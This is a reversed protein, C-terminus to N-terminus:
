SRIVFPEERGYDVLQACEGSTIDLTEASFVPLRVLRGGFRWPNWQASWQGHQSEWKSRGTELHQELMRVAHEVSPVVAKWWLLDDEM